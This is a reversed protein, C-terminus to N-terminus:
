AMEVGSANFSVNGLDSRVRLVDTTAMAQGITLSKTENPLLREDYVLYQARDDAAGAIALAIRYRAIFSNQNCIVISSVITSTLAPVTYLDTLVSPLPNAQGTPKYTNAM